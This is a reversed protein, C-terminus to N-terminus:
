TIEEAQQLIRQIFPAKAKTYAERNYAYIENLKSKLEAYEVATEPYMRLYNRFGRNAKWHEGEYLYIHLHHTGAGRKGKRFFKREPFHVHEVHEYGILELRQIHVTSLQELGAIGVMIDIVPKATMGPISTSGIHEIGILIDQLLPVIEKKELEFLDVWEPDYESLIVEQKSGSM